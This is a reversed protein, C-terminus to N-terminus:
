THIYWLVDTREDSQDAYLRAGNRSDSGNDDPVMIMLSRSRLSPTCQTCIFPWHESPFQSGKLNISAQVFLSLSSESMINGFAASPQIWPLKMNICDSQLSWIVEVKRRKGHSNEDPVINNLDM